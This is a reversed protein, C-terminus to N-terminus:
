LIQLRWIVWSLACWLAAFPLALPAVAGYALAVAAVQFFTGGVERGARLSVRPVESLLLLSEQELQQQQEQQAKKSSSSSPLPPPPPSSSSSSSRAAEADDATTTETATKAEAAKKKAGRRRLSVRRPSSLSVLGAIARKWGRKWARGSKGLLVKLPVSCPWLLRFPAM